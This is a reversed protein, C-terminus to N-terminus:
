ELFSVKGSTVDYFAGVIKVKGEAILNKIVESNKSIAAITLKINQMATKTSKTDVDLSENPIAPKIQNVLQTLKGLEVNDIAGKVAGCKNHGM